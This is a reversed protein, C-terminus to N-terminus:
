NSAVVPKIDNRDEFDDLVASSKVDTTTITKALIPHKGVKSQSEQAIDTEFKLTGDVKNPVTNGM